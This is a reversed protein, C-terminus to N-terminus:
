LRGLGVVRFPSDVGAPDVYNSSLDQQGMM